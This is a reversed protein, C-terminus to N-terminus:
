IDACAADYDEDFCESNKSFRCLEEELCSSLIKLQLEMLRCSLECLTRTGEVSQSCGIRGSNTDKRIESSQEDTVNPSGPPIYAKVCGFTFIEEDILARPLYFLTAGL